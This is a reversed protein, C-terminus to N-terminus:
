SKRGGFAGMFGSWAIGLALLLSAWLMPYGAPRNGVGLITLAQAAPDWSAQFFFTDQWELPYNMHIKASQPNKEDGYNVFCYFESPEDSGPRRPVDFGTMWISGPMPMPAKSYMLEFKGAEPVDIMIPRPAYMGLSNQEGLNKPLHPYPSYPVWTSTIKGKHEATVEVLSEFDGVSMRSQQQEKPVPIPETVKKPRQLVQNLRVTINDDWLPTTIESGPDMPFSKIARGPQGVYLTIKKGPASIFALRTREADGQAPVHIKGSEPTPFLQELKAMAQAFQAEDFCHLWVLPTDALVDVSTTAGVPRSFGQGDFQSTFRVDLLPSLPAEADDKWRSTLRAYPSFGTISFQVDNVAGLPLALAQGGAIHRGKDHYRPLGKITLAAVADPAVSRMPNMPDIARAADERRVWIAPKDKNYAMVEPANELSIKSLRKDPVNKVRARQFRTLSPEGIISSGSQQGSPLKVTWEIMTGQRGQFGEALLPFNPTVNTIELSKEGDAVVDTKKAGKKVAVAILPQGAADLVQVNNEDASVSSIEPLYSQPRRGQVTYQTLDPRNEILTASFPEVGLLEIKVTVAWAQQSKGEPSLITWEPVVAEVTATGSGFSSSYGANPLLRCSGQDADVRIFHRVLIADGEKKFYFYITCTIVLSIIGAHSIHTGAKRWTWPVRIISATTLCFCIVGWLVLSEPGNFWEMENVEFSQRFKYYASGLAQHIFVIVLLTLAM